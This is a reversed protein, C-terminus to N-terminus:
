QRLQTQSQEIPPTQIVPNDVLSITVNSDTDTLAKRTDTDNKKESQLKRANIHDQHVIMQDFNEPRENPHKSQWHRKKFYNSGRILVTRCM